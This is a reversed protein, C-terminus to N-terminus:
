AGVRETDRRAVGLQFEWGQTNGEVAKAREAATLPM